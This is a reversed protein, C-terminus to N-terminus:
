AGPESWYKEWGEPLRYDWYDKRLVWALLKPDRRVEQQHFAYGAKYAKETRLQAENLTSHRTETGRVAEVVFRKIRRLPDKWSRGARTRTYSACVGYYYSRQEFYEVTMRSAPIEHQVAARPHYLAKLGARAVKLSLGTEGDGQFRQLPKPVCDPHFGGLDFLANRRIAFNLGWIYGPNIEKIHSGGDFLSLHGCDRGYQDTFFFDELWDPPPSEFLPRSPGGALAVQPDLFCEDLAILWNRDPRVDDDLFVCIEGRSELAGRHRGSLLGPMPEYFYKWQLGPFKLRISDFAARTNDVSGNDVVLIEVADPRLDVQALSWLTRELSADRNRTPIIISFTM